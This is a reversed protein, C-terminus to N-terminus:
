ARLKLEKACKANKMERTSIKGNLSNESFSRVVTVM